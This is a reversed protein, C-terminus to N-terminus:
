LTNLFHHHVFGVLHDSRGGVHVIPLEVLDMISHGLSDTGQQAEDLTLAPHVAIHAGAVGTM